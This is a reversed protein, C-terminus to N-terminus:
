SLFYIADYAQTKISGYKVHIYMNFYPYFINISYKSLYRLKLDKHDNELINFTDM